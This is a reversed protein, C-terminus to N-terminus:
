KIFHDFDNINGILVFPFKDAHLVVNLALFEERRGELAEFSASNTIDYVLVCCATARFSTFGISVALDM